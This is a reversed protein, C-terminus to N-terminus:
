DVHEVLLGDVVLRHVLSWKLKQYFARGEM